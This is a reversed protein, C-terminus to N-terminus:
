FSCVRYHKDVPTAVGCSRQSNVDENGAGSELEVDISFSDGVGVYTYTYGISVIGPFYSSFGVGLSTPYTQNDNYYMRLANKMSGLDQIKKADRARERAGVFNMVIIAMLVAMISIVVLLEVLSFGSKRKIM